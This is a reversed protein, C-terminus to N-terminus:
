YGASSTPVRVTSEAGEPAILERALEATASTGLRAAGASIMRRADDLSRIGGSAKVGVSPGCAARMLRVDHETAGTARWLGAADKIFGFGTSTKVFDAGAAASLMCLTRKLEDDPLLGTELIVKTMAGHARAVAVIAAIEAQLQSLQGALAWGLNIVMDIERAGAGIAGEAEALKAETSTGGHPFGIVTGVKVPSDALLRAALPVDCPKVCVSATALRLCLECARQVDAVTQTPQLVAHDIMSLISLSMAGQSSKKAAPAQRAISHVVLGFSQNDGQPLGVKVARIAVALGPHILSKIPSAFAMLFKM